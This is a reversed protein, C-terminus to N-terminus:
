IGLLATMAALGGGFSEPDKLSAVHLIRVFAM